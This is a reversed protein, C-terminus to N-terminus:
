GPEGSGPAAGAHLALRGEFTCEGEGEGWGEGWVLGNRVRVLGAQGRLHLERQEHQALAASSCPLYLAASGRPRGEQVRPGGLRRRQGLAEVVGREIALRM